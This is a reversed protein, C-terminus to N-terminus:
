QEDFCYKDIMKDADAKVSKTFSSGCFQNHEIADIMGEVTKTQGAMILGKLMGLQVGTVLYRGAM